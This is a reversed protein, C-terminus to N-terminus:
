AGAGGGVGLQEEDHGEEAENRASCLRVENLFYSDSVSSGGAIFRTM